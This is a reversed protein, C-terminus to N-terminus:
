PQRAYKERLTSKENSKRKKAPKHNYNEKDFISHDKRIKEEIQRKNSQKISKCIKEQQSIEQKEQLVDTSFIKTSTDHILMPISLLIKWNM